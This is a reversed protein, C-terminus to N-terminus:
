KDYFCKVSVSIISTLDSRDVCTDLLTYMCEFAAQSNDCSSEHPPIGTHHTMTVNGLSGLNDDLAVLVLTHTIPKVKEKMLQNKNLVKLTVRLLVLTFHVKRLDLGDDVEHKFPGM